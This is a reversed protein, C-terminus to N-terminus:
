LRTRLSPWRSREQVRRHKRVTRHIRASWWARWQFLGSTAHHQPDHQWARAWIDQSVEGRLVGVGAAAEVDLAPRTM